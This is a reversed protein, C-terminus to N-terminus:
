MHISDQTNCLCLVMWAACSERGGKHYGGYGSEWFTSGMAATCKLVVPATHPGMKPLPFFHSERRKHVPM